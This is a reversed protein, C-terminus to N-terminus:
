KLKDQKETAPDMSTEIVVDPNKAIVNEITLRPYSLTVDHTISHGGAMDILEDTFTGSGATVFPYSEYAFFVTPKEANKTKERICAAVKEMNQVIASAEAERGMHKGLEQISTEINRYNRLNLVFVPISLTRLRQIVPEPNGDDTALVLDPKLSVIAELNLNVYS